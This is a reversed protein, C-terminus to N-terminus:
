TMAGPKKAFTSSKKSPTNQGSSARIRELSPRLSQFLLEFERQTLPGLEKVMARLAKEQVEIEKKKDGLAITTISDMLDNFDDKALRIIRRKSICWAAVRHMLRYLFSPEDIILNRIVYQVISAAARMYKKDNVNGKQLMSNLSSYKKVITVAVIAPMRAINFTHRGITIEHTKVLENDVKSM